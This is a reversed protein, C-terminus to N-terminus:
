KKLQQSIDQFEEMLIRMAGKDKNEEAKKIDRSIRVIKDKVVENELASITFSLEETPDFRGMVRGEAEVEFVAEDIYKQAEYSGADKKIKEIDSNDKNKLISLYVKKELDESFYDPSLRGLKKAAERPFALILGLVRRRLKATKESKNKEVGHSAEQTSREPGLKGLVELLTKEGVDLKEALNKIWHAKEVPDSIDKILNLLVKAIKKKDTPNKPDLRNLADEFFYEVLNKADALAKKWIEKDERVAEATDKADPLVVIKVNLDNELCIKASKKAAAQGASDMDFAMKLNEGYRKITKIQDQTLATGSVAITNPFGAQHSAIVDMNGEVLIVEERKKIETKAFNLGYLIRSKDYLETQPTNVYKASKEDGGPAVRASFGVVRGMLDQIPFIIRDRFRDYYDSNQIQKPNQIESKPNREVLIGTRAIEGIEYGRKALFDLVNRWGDPAYGLRFNKISTKTLGRGELYKLIKDKGKGEWLNKEYWKTALELIEHLRKKDERENKGGWDGKEFKKLEVGAKAALTELAERFGIGEMEMVFSFIDGGKGCGFCHWSKREESLMFSSTKENHFPCLAKWNSGAKTVRIYEGVVDVVSLRNKVEEVESSMIQIGLV